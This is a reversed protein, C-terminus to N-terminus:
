NKVSANVTFIMEISSANNSVVKRWGMIFLNTPFSRPKRKSFGTWTNTIEKVTRTKPVIADPVYGAKIRELKEGDLVILDLEFFVPWFQNLIPNTVKWYTLEIMKIM